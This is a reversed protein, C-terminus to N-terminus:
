GNADENKEPLPKRSIFPALAIRLSQKARWLRQRVVGINTGTVEAVESYSLGEFDHLMVVERQNPPLMHVMHELQATLMLQHTEADPLPTQTDIIKNHEESLPIQRSAHKLKALCNFRAITYIWARAADPNRVTGAQEYVTVVTDQFIDAALSTDGRVFRLIFRYLDQGRRRYLEVFAHEDGHQFRRLLEGDTPPDSIIPNRVAATEHIVPSFIEQLSEKLQDVPLTTENL